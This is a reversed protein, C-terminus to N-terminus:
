RINYNQFMVSAGLSVSVGGKPVEGDDTLAM